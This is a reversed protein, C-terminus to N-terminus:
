RAIWSLGDLSKLVTTGGAPAIYAVGVGANNIQSSGDPTITVVGTALTCVVTLMAMRGSFVSTALTNLTAAQAGAGTAFIVNGIDAGAFTFAAAESRFAPQALQVNPSQTLTEM